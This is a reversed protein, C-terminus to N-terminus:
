PTLLDSAGEKKPTTAAPNCCHYMKLRHIQQGEIGISNIMGRNLIWGGGM